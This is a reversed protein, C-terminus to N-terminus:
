CIERLFIVGEDGVGDPADVDVEGRGRGRVRGELLLEGGELRPEGMFGLM